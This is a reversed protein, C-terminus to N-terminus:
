EAVASELCSPDGLRAPSGAASYGLGRLRLLFWPILVPAEAALTQLGQEMQVWAQIAKPNSMAAAMEPSQMQQSFRLLLQPSMPEPQAGQAAQLANQMLSFMMRKTYANCLDVILQPIEAAEPSQAGGGVRFAREEEESPSLFHATASSHGLPSALPHFPGGEESCMSSPCLSTCSHSVPLSGLHTPLALPPGPSSQGSAQESGPNRGLTAFSNSVFLDPAPNMSPEQIESNLQRLPNDGGPISSRLSTLTQDQSKLDQILDPNRALDMIERMKDLIVRMIDMNNLIHSIAPAQQALQQVEPNALIVQRVKQIIMESTPVLQWETSTPSVEAPGWVNLLGPSFTPSALNGGSAPMDAAAAAPRRPRYPQQTLEDPDRKQPRIVLHVTMGDSIGYQRLTDQDKLIRGFFVLVLQQTECRFHKSLEEKFQLITSTEPIVFQASAKPAKATICIFRPSPAVLPCAVMAGEPGKDMTETTGPPSAAQM